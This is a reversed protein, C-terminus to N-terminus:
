SLLFDIFNDIIALEKDSTKSPVSFYVQGIPKKSKQFNYFGYEPAVTYMAIVVRNVSAYHCAFRFDKRNNSLEIRKM